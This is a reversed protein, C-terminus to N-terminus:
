FWGHGNPRLSQSMSAPLVNKVLIRRTSRLLQLTLFYKPCQTLYLRLESDTYGTIVSLKKVVQPALADVDLEFATTDYDREPAKSTEDYRVLELTSYPQDM